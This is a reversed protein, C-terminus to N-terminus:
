FPIEDDLDDAVSTEAPEGAILKAEDAWGVIHFVPYHVEGFTQHRYSSAGM